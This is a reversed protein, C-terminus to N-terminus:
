EGSGDMNDKREKRKERREKIKEKMHARHAKAEEKDIYGDKNADKKEFMQKARAEHEAASVKGDGDRDVRHEKMQKQFAENTPATDYAQDALVPTSVLLGAVALVTMLTKM